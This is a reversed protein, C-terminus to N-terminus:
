GRRVGPGSEHVLAIGGSGGARIGRCIHLRSALQDIAPVSVWERNVRAHGVDVERAKSGSRYGGFKLDDVVDKVPVIRLEVISRRPETVEISGHVRCKCFRTARTVTGGNVEYKIGTLKAVPVVM